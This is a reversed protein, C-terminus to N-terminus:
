NWVGALRRYIRAFEGAFRTRSFRQEATHRAAAGLQARLQPSASLQRILGALAATDGPRHTLANLGNRVIEAAGGSESVIVAKGCAMAEVIVLGFPEPQTSAHVIIDLSRIAPAPDEVFGTFGVRGALGLTDALDELEALTHQSRDTQYIPGGVVYGRIPLAPDLMAMARLFVEHGKWRAFTSVLGVRVTGREPSPLGAMADLDLTPGVPTFAKTDIGNHVAEIKLGSACVSRLDEAVSGSNAVATSCRSACLRLLPATV